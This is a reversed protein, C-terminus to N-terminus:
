PNRGAGAAKLSQPITKAGDGLAAVVNRNLRRGPRWGLTARLSAVRPQLVCDTRSQVLPQRTQLLVGQAAAKAAKRWGNKPLSLTFGPRREGPPPCVQPYVPTVAHWGAYVNTAKSTEPRSFAPGVRSLTTVNGARSWAL